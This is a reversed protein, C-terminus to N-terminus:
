LQYSYGKVFGWSFPSSQYHGFLGHRKYFNLEIGSNRWKYILREMKKTYKNYMHYICAYSGIENNVQKITSM